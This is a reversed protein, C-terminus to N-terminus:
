GVVDVAREVVAMRRAVQEVGTSNFVVEAFDGFPYFCVGEVDDGNEETVGVPVFRRIVALWENCRGVEGLRDLFGTQDFVDVLWGLRGHLKVVPWREAFENKVVVTDDGEDVVVEVSIRHWVQQPLEVVHPFCGERWSVGIERARQASGLAHGLLLHPFDHVHRVM